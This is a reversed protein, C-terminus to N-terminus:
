PTARATARGTGRSRPSCRRRASTDLLAVDIVLGAFFGAVAGADSRADACRGRADRAPHRADRRAGLRQFVPQLVAAAFMLLGIKFADIM